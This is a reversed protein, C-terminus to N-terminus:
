RIEVNDLKPLDEITEGGFPVISVVSQNQKAYYVWVCDGERLSSYASALDKRESLDIWFLIGTTALLAVRDKGRFGVTAGDLGVESVVVNRTSM